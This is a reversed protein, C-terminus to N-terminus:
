AGKRGAVFVVPLVPRPGSEVSRSRRVLPWISDYIKAWIEEEVREAEFRRDLRRETSVRSRRVVGDM